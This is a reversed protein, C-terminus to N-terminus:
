AFSLYELLVTTLRCKKQFLSPINEPINLNNLERLTEIKAKIRLWFKLPKVPSLGKEGM